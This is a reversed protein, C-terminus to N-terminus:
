PQRRLWGLRPELALLERVHDDSFGMEALLCARVLVWLRDTMVILDLGTEAKDALHESYHTYYNRTDAVGQAFGDPDPGLSGLLAAGHLNALQQVREALSRENAYATSDFV